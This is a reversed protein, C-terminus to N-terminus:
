TYDEGEKTAIKEAKEHWMYQVLAYKAKLFIVTIM